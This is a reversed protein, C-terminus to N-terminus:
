FRVKYKRQLVARFGYRDRLAFCSKNDNFQLYRRFSTLVERRFREAVNRMDQMGSRRGNNSAATSRVESAIRERWAIIGDDIRQIYEYSEICKKGPLVKKDICLRMLGKLVEFHALFRDTHVVKENGRLKYSLTFEVLMATAADLIRDGLVARDRKPIAFRLNYVVGVLKYTDVYIPTDVVKKSM